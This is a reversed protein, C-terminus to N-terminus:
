PASRRLDAYACAIAAGLAANSEILRVNAELSRGETLREMAALLYPTVDKGVVGDTEALQLAREIARDVDAKPLEANPPIPNAVLVGGRLGLTSKARAIRAVEAPSDVRYAAPYGSDRTYFAPFQQTQYGLVPVGYTELVELTRGIDLIAKAGACVVIVDTEALEQLDASIDMTREGGRHVGGIGGTVFVHIGALRAAIMTAAVTTSATRGSALVVPLDRRSAKVVNETQALAEIEADTMGVHIRSERICITAPVAGAERIIREVSRATSVNAPYPMGHTIITTELAVIPTGKLKAQAVEDSYVLVTEATARRLSETECAASPVDERGM